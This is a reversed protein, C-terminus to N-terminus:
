HFAAGVFGALTSQRSYRLAAADITPFFHAPQELLRAALLLCSQKEASLRRIADDINAPLM